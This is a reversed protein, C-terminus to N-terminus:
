DMLDEALPIALSRYWRDFSLVADASVRKVCSAVISDFVTHQKSRTKQTFRELADKQIDEDVWVVMFSGQLFQRAILQAKATLNLKRKLTTIAELIATNPYLVTYNKQELVSVITRAKGHHIDRDNVLAILSDADGVIIKSPERM